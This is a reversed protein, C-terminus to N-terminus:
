DVEPHPDQGANKQGPTPHDHNGEPIHLHHLTLIVQLARPSVPDTQDPDRGRPPNDPITVTRNQGVVAGTEVQHSGRGLNVIPATEQLFQAPNQFNGFLLEGSAEIGEAM